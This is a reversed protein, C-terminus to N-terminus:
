PQWVVNAKDNVVTATNFLLYNRILHTTKAHTGVKALIAVEM